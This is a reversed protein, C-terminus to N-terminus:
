AKSNVEAELNEELEGKEAMEALGRCVEALGRTVLLNAFNSTVEIGEQEILRALAEFTDAQRRFEKAYDTGSDDVAKGAKEAGMIEVFEPICTSLDVFCGYWKKWWKKVAELKNELSIAYFAVEQLKCNPCDEGVCGMCYHSGCNECETLEHPYTTM